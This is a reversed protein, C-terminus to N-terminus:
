VLDYSARKKFVQHIGKEQHKLIITYIFFPITAKNQEFITLIGM